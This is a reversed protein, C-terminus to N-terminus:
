KLSKLDSLKNYGKDILIKVNEELIEKRFDKDNSLERRIDNRLTDNSIDDDLKVKKLKKLEEKQLEYKMSLSVYDENVKMLRKILEDAILAKQEKMQRLETQRAKYKDTKNIYENKVGLPRGLKKLQVISSYENYLDVIDDDVKHTITNTNTKKM